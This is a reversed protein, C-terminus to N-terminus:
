IEVKSMQAGTVIVGGHNAHMPGMNTIMIEKQVDNSSKACLAKYGLFLIVLGTPVGVIAGWAAPPLGPGSSSQADGSGPPAETELGLTGASNM